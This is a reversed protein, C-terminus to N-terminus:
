ADKTAGVNSQFPRGVGRGGGGWNQSIDRGGSNLIKFVGYGGGNEFPPPPEFQTKYGRFFDSFRFFHSM